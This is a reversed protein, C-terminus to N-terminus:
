RLAGEGRSPADNLSAHAVHRRSSLPVDATPHALHATLHAGDRAAPSPPLPASDSFLQEVRADRGVFTGAEHNVLILSPLPASSPVVGM